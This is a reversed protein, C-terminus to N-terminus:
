YSVNVKQGAARLPTPSKTAAFDEFILLTSKRFTSEIERYASWRQGANPCGNILGRCCLGVVILETIVEPM